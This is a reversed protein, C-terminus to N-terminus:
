HFVTEATFGEDKIIERLHELAGAHIQRVRDRSIQMVAAVEEVTGPEFDRLGYRRCLVDRQKDSLGDLWEDVKRAITENQLVDPLSPAEEDYLTEVIPKDLSGKVPIDLSTTRENLHFMKEVTQVPQGIHNAVEKATPDYPLQAALERSARLYVNLEKVVHVPLRITRSQNMIAREINQKIWWAAYTSFRFGREPEFKEVAHILGLNGEEILDLLPLGRHLYRRCLKVVLRLNSEVMTKFASADGERALRGYHKEEDATLLKSHALEKLYIETADFGNSARDEDNSEEGAGASTGDENFEVSFASVGEALNPDSFRDFDEATRTAM